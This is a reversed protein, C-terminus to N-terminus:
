PGEPEVLAFKLKRGVLCPVDGEVKVLKASQGEALVPANCHVKLLCSAGCEVWRKTMATGRTAAAPITVRLPLPRPEVAVLQVKGEFVHCVDHKVARVDTIRYERGARLGSQHCAKYLKCAPCGPDTEGEYRFVLGPKALAEGIVTLGM